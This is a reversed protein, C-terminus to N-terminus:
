WDGYPGGYAGMDNRSGNPDNYAPDPDGEVIGPSGGALHYDGNDPNVFVPSQSINTSNFESWTTDLINYTIDFGTLNAAGPYITNASNQAFICNKITFQAHLYPTYIASSNNFAINGYITTNIIKVDNASPDIFIASGYNQATNSVIICNAVEVEDNLYLAGGEAYKLGVDYVAVNKKFICNRIKTNGRADIAGGKVSIGDAFTLNRIMTDEVKLFFIPPMHGGSYPEPAYWSVIVEAVPGVGEIHLPTRTLDLPSSWHIGPLLQLTDGADVVKSRARAEFEYSDGPIRLRTTYPMIVDIESSGVLGNITFVDLQYHVSEDDLLTDQWTTIKPNYIVSRILIRNQLTDAINLYYRTIEFRTFDDVALQPWSLDVFTTDYIPLDTTTAALVLLPDDGDNVDVKFPDACTLVSLVLGAIIMNGIKGIATHDM